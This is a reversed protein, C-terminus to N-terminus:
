PQIEKNGAKIAPKSIPTNRLRHTAVKKRKAAEKRQTNTIKNEKATIVAESDRAELPKQEAQINWPILVIMVLFALVLKKM